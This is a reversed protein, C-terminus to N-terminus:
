SASEHEQAYAFPEAASPSCRETALWGASRLKAVRNRAVPVHLGNKLVLTVTRDDKYWAEVANREVWWSRHVQLGRSEDIAGVVQRMVGYHLYSRGQTHVRIHHDEMQLCMASSLIHDPLGPGDSANHPISSGSTAAAEPGDPAMEAIPGFRKLGGLEIWVLLIAWPLTVGLTLGYWELAKISSARLPWFLSTITADLMALPVCAIIIIAVISFSPPFGAKPGKALATAAGCWAVISGIWFLSTWYTLRYFFNGDYSGFPGSLGFGLGALTGWSVVRAWREPSTLLDALDLAPSTGNASMMRYGNNANEDAHRAERIGTHTAINWDSRTSGNGKSRLSCM